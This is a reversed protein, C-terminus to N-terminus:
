FNKIYKLASINAMDEDKELSWVVRNKSDIQVLKPQSKDKSHGNWNALLIDGGDLEQASAAFLIKFDSDLNSNDIRRAVEGTSSNIVELAGRDGCSVLYNGNKLEEIAFAGSRLPIEKVLEGRPSIEVIKPKGWLAAIYNGRRNKSVVRFQAHVNEIGTDFSTEKLVKGSKSLEVFRAPHGCIGLLFNENALRRATHLEEGEKAKYEWLVKKKLSVLAAGSKNAYVINRDPTIDVSNCERYNPIEYVWDKAGTKKDIVMIKNWGCGAVLLKEAASLGCSFAATVILCLLCKAVNKM